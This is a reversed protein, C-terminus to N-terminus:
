CTFTGYAYSSYTTLASYACNSYEGIPMAIPVSWVINNQYYTFTGSGQSFHTTCYSSCVINETWASIPYTPASSPLPYSYEYNGFASSLVEIWATPPSGSSQTYYTEFIIGSNLNDGSLIPIISNTISNLSCSSSYSWWNPNFDNVYNDSATGIVIVDQYTLIEKHCSPNVYLANDQISWQTTDPKM